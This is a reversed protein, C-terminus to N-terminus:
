FDLIDNLISLLSDASSRVAALSDRQYPTLESDLVLDTMGMIGNMPTRIEHSMNALFESKARNADMARDRATVLAENSRQLESTRAVVSRELNDQQLVLQADRKQIDSLMANFRDILEGIEDDPGPAARVDYRGSDRVVRTVEILRAIPDFLLRATLRSLGLAIWFAGFLTGAAIAVLRTQRTRVETTDSEVEIRGITEGDLGIARVVILRDGDFRVFPGTSARPALSLTTARVGPRLYTALMTGDATFLCASLIHENISTARLIDTAAAADKFTMAATSNSGVIDALMTVDRVLRSRLTVYDYVLFVTCAAILTVASTTLVTTTLKRRVSQRLFWAKLRDLM